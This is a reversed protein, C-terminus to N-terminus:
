MLSLLHQRTAHILLGASTKCPEVHLFTSGSVMSMREHAHETSESRPNHAQPLCNESPVMALLFHNRARNDSKVPLLILEAEYTHGSEPRMLRAFVRGELDRVISYEGDDIDLKGEVIETALRKFVEPEPRPDNIIVEPVLQASRRGDDLTRITWPNRRPQANPDNQIVEIQDEPRSLFRRVYCSASVYREETTLPEIEPGEEFYSFRESM